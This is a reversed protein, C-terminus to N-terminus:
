LAGNATQGGAVCVVVAASPSGDQATVPAFKGESFCFANIMICIVDDKSM